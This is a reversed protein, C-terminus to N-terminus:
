DRTVRVFKGNRSPRLILPTGDPAFVRESEEIGDLLVLRNIIRNGLRTAALHDDSLPPEIRLEQGIWYDLGVTQLAGDSANEFASLGLAPFPGGHLWATTVSEFYRRGIASASPPWIVALLNEFHRAIDAALALAGKSVPLSSASGALSRGPAICIAEGATLEATHDLDFRHEFPPIACAEGPSLGSLDFTLGVRLLELWSQNAEGEAEQTEHSPDHSISAENDGRTLEVIEDRTPRKGAAFVLYLAGTKADNARDIEM